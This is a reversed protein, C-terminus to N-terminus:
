EPVHPAQVCGSGMYIGVLVAPAAVLATAFAAALACGTVADGGLVAGEALGIGAVCPCADFIAAAAPRLYAKM